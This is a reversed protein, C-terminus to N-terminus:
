DAMVWTRGYSRKGETLYIGVGSGSEEYYIIADTNVRVEANGMDKIMIFSTV